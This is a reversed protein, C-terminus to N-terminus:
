TPLNDDAQELDDPLADVTFEGDDGSMLLKGAHNVIARYHAPPLDLMADPDVPLPLQQGATDRLERLYAWGATDALEALDRAEARTLTVPAGALLDSVDAVQGDVSVQSAFEIAQMKPMLVTSLVEIERSRRPPLEAPAYFRAVGGGPLPIHLPIPDAGGRPKVTKRTKSPM